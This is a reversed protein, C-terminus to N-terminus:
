PHLRSRDASDISGRSSGLLVSGDRWVRRPHDTPRDDGWPSRSEPMVGRHPSATTDWHQCRGVETTQSATKNKLKEPRRCHGSIDALISRKQTHRYSRSPLAVAPEDVSHSTTEDLEGPILRNHGSDRGLPVPAGTLEGQCRTVRARYRAPQYLGQLRRNSTPMAGGVTHDRRKKRRWRVM